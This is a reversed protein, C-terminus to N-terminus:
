TAVVSECGLPPPDAADVLARDEFSPGCDVLRDTVGDHADLLDAGGLGRLTDAGAGGILRNVGGHGELIDDGSTGTINEVDIRVNDRAGPPGDRTTGDNPENDLRVAVGATRGAYSATDVGSRGLLVDTETGGDLLDAGGGGDLHNDVARGFLRDHAGNGRIANPEPGGLIEDDEPSGWAAEFGDIVQDQEVAGVPGATGGAALEIRLPKSRASYDLVDVDGDAGSRLRDTGDYTARAVVRDAGPGADVFDNGPGPTLKDDGEGGLLADGTTQGGVLIDDGPGGDLRDNQISKYPTPEPPVYGFLTDRGPGGEVTFSGQDKGTDDLPMETEIHFDDDGDGLRAGFLWNWSGDGAGFYPCRVHHADIQTCGLGPEPVIVGGPDVIDVGPDGGGYSTVTVINREGPDALYLYEGGGRDVTAASAGGAGLALCAAAAIAIAPARM